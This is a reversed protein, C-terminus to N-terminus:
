PQGDSAIIQHVDLRPDTSRRTDATLARRWLSEVREESELAKWRAGSEVNLNYNSPTALDTHFRLVGAMHIM